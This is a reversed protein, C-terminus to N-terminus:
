KYRSTSAHWELCGAMWAQAGRLIRQLQPSGMVALQRQSTEFGKVFENHMAVSRETAERISLDDEAAILLVLNLDPLEDAAERAPRGHRFRVSQYLM